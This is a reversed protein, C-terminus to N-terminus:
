PKDTEHMWELAAQLGQEDRIERFRKAATSNMTLNGIYEDICGYRRYGQAEQVGNIM